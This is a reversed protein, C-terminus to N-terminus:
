YQTIFYFLKAFKISLEQCRFHHSDQSFLEDLVSAHLSMMLDDYIICKPLTSSRIDGFTPEGGRIEIGPCAAKLAAIFDKQNFLHKEPMCYIIRSFETTFLQKQHKLIDLMLRSKGSM